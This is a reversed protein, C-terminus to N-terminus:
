GIKKIDEYERRYNSIKDETEKNAFIGIDNQPDYDVYSRRDHVPHIFDPEGWVRVASIYEYGRFGFFHVQKGHYMNDAGSM